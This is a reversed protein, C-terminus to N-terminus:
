KRQVSLQDRTLMFVGHGGHAFELWSFDVQPYARELAPWSNGVEVILLGGPNLFDSADRLMLRVLDLGDDGAELGLIPEHSFEEPMAAIDQADVYPPNSIILDYRATVPEFLSGELLWIRELMGHQSINERALALADTSLDSAHVVANPLAHACAIAICAGGTCLDLIAPREVADLLGYFDDNIFEALPSRPVLARSDCIFQHGAFWAQGTLYAAPVRQEIRQSLLANCAEVQETSLQTSYDPASAPSLDIAFLILWAAEDISTDTGHGYCLRHQDFQLAAVRIASEITHSDEVKLVSVISM